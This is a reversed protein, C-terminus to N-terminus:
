VSFEEHAIVWQHCAYLHRTADCVSLATRPTCMTSTVPNGSKAHKPRQFPAEQSCRHSVPWQCLSQCLPPALGGMWATCRHHYGNSARQLSFMPLRRKTHCWSVSFWTQVKLRTHKHVTEKVSISGGWRKCPAILCAPDAKFLLGGGPPAAETM